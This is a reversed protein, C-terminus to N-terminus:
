RQKSEASGKEYLFKTMVITACVVTWDAIAHGVFSGIHTAQEVLLLARNLLIVVGLAAVRVPISGSFRTNGRQHIEVKNSDRLNLRRESSLPDDLYRRGTSASIEQARDPRLQM